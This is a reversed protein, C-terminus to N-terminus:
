FLIIYIKNNLKIIIKNCCFDFFFKMFTNLCIIELFDMELLVFEFDFDFDFNALFLVLFNM